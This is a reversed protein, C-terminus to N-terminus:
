DWRHKVPHVAYAGDARAEEIRRDLVGATKMYKKGVTTERVLFGEHYAASPLAIELYTRVPEERAAVAEFAARSWFSHFGHMNFLAEECASKSNNRWSEIFGPLAAHYLYHPNCTRDVREISHGLVGAGNALATRELYEIWNSSLPLVDFESFNVWSFNKGEMWGSAARFVDRYSQRDVQHNKTRHFSGEIFIKEFSGLKTFQERSGGYLVVLDNQPFLRRWYEVMRDVSQPVQHSLVANLTASSSKM